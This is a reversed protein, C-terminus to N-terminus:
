QTKVPRSPRVVEKHSQSSSQNSGNNIMMRLRKDRMYKAATEVAMNKDDFPGPSTGKCTGLGACTNYREACSNLGKCDNQGHCTQSALKLALARGEADMIIYCARAEISLLPMLEAETMLKPTRIPTADKPPADVRNLAQRDDPCAASCPAAALAGSTMGLVALKTLNARKKM